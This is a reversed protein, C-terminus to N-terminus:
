AYCDSVCSSKSKSNTRLNNLNYNIVNWQWLAARKLNYTSFFTQYSLFSIDCFSVMRKGKTFSERIDYLNRRRFLERNESRIFPENWIWIIKANSLEYVTINIKFNIYPNWQQFKTVSRQFAIAILSTNWKTDLYHIKYSKNGGYAIIHYVQM